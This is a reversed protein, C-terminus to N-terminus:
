RRPHNARFTAMEAEERKAAARGEEATYGSLTWLHVYVRADFEGFRDRICRHCVRKTGYDYYSIRLSCNVCAADGCSFCRARTTTGSQPTALCAISDVVTCSEPTYAEEASEIIPESM